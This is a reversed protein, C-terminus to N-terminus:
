IKNIRDVIANDSFDYDKMYPLKKFSDDIIVKNNLIKEKTMNIENKISQKLISDINKHLYDKLSEVIIISSFTDLEVHHLINILFKIADEDSIIQIYDTMASIRENGKTKLVKGYLVKKIEELWQDEIEKPIKCKRYEDGLERDIHFHSGNYKFFIQKCKEIEM